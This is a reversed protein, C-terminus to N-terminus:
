RFAIRDKDDDLKKADIGPVKQLADLDKFDGNAARYAVIAGAQQSSIDLVEELEKAGAKNVNVKGLYRYLYQVVTDFEEDTGAAGRGAMDDVTTQWGSRTRRLGVVTALGHCNSCLKEVTAKGPGDPLDQARLIAMSILAFMGTLVIKQAKM